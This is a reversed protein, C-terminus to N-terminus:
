GSLILTLIPRTQGGHVKQALATFKWPWIEIGVTSLYRFSKMINASMCTCVPTRKTLYVHHGIVSRIGLFTGNPCSGM